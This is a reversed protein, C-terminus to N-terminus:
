ANSKDGKNELLEPNDQINGIVEVWAGNKEQIYFDIFAICKENKFDILFTCAEKHYVVQGILTDQGLFVKVIDNEFIKNGNKDDKGIYQSVTDSYVSFKEIPKKLEIDDNGYIISFDGEGHCIGGFVWNSPMPDGAVNMLKEGFRRTQGRFLIREM